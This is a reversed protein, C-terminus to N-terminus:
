IQTNKLFSKLIYDKIIANVYNKKIFLIKKYGYLEIKVQYDVSNAQPFLYHRDIINFENELKEHISM